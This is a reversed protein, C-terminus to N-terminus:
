SQLKPCDTTVHKYSIQVIGLRDSQSIINCSIVSWRSDLSTLILYYLLPQLRM